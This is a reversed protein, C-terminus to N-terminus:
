ILEHAVAKSKEALLCSVPRGFDAHQASHINLVWIFLPLGQWFNEGALEKLGFVSM